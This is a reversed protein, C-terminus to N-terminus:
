GKDIPGEPLPVLHFYQGHVSHTEGATWSVTRRLWAVYFHWDPLAVISPATSSADKVAAAITVVSSRREGKHSLVTARITDEESWCLVVKDAHPAGLRAVAPLEAVAIGSGVESTPDYLGANMLTATAWGNAPIMVAVDVTGIAISRYVLTPNNIFSWHQAAVFMSYWEITTNDPGTESPRASPGLAAVTPCSGMFPNATRDGSTLGLHAQANISIIAPGDAPQFQFQNAWVLFAPSMESIQVSSAFHSTYASSPAPSTTSSSNDPNWVDMRRYSVHSQGASGIDGSSWAVTFQHKEGNAIVTPQSVRNGVVMSRSLRGEAVIIPVSYIRSGDPNFPWALIRREGDGADDAFDRVYVVVFTGDDWMGVSASSATPHPDVAIESQLPGSPSM